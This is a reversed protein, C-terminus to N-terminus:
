VSFHLYLGCVEEINCYGTFFSNSDEVAVRHSAVAAQVEAEPKLVFLVKLHFTTYMANTTAYASLVNLHKLAHAQFLM